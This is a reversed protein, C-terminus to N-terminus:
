RLVLVKLIWKKAGVMVRFYYLGNALTMGSKDMLPVVIVDGMVQPSRLSQVKRLSLTFIDVTVNSLDYGPLAVDVQNGTAPNPYVVPTTVATPTGTLTPTPSNLPTSTRTQTPTWSSTSTSTMSETPTWTPTVSPTHTQTATVTNTPTRTMTSTNSSTDTATSTATSTRTATMTHTNTSTATSTSTGTATSTRTATSTASNTATESDTVTSSSTSTPTSTSTYQNTPTNTQTETPTITFTHTMTPTPTDTFCNTQYFYQLNNAGGTAGTFGYYVCTAGGFVSAVLDRDYTMVVAGDMYLTLAKGVPDWTINYTHEVGNDIPTGFVFPCTGGTTYGCTSTTSGNEEPQLTGNNAYTELCLAVSPTIANTGSYGKDSGGGAIAATGRPDNQLVFDMGDAGAAAGFYAKFTMNFNQTLSICTRNWASGVQGNTATTLTVAAGQTANGNVIWNSCAGFTPTVTPTYTPTATYNNMQMQFIGRGFTWATLTDTSKEFMLQQVSVNPMGTSAPNMATWSTGSNTSYLMGIDTGVFIDAPTNPDVAICNHPINVGDDISTWTPSAALANATVFIHGSPTGDYGSYVAYLTNANAPNFTVQTINLNPLGNTVPGNWSTGGNSTVWIENKADTFAITKNTTDSLAYEIYQINGTPAISSSINTWVVNTSTPNSWFDTAQYLTTSAGALVYNQNNYSRCTAQIGTLSGVQQGTTTYYFSPNNWVSPNTSRYMTGNSSTGLAGAADGFFDQQNSSGDGGALSQAFVGGGISLQTGNDQTGGGVLNSPYGPQVSGSHGYIMMTQLGGENIDNFTNGSDTSLFIGGDCSALLNTNSQWCLERGDAHFPSNGAYYETWASNTGNAVNFTEYNTWSDTCPSNCYYNYFDLYIMQSNTPNVKFGDPSSIPATLTTWVPTPDWADSTMYFGSPNYAYDGTAAIVYVTNQDSPAIAVYLDSLGSVSSWPGSVVSWSTGANTSRYIGATPNSGINSANAFYQNSFNSSSAVLCPGPIGICGQFTNTWTTGGNTSKYVGGLNGWTPGVYWSYRCDFEVNNPNAPDVLMDRMNTYYNTGLINNYTAIENWTSGGDTSEIVGGWGDEAPQTNAYVINPSSASFAIAGSNNNYSVNFSPYDDTQPTWTTGNNTTQWIGGSDSFILIHSSNSPDVAINWIRGNDKQNSPNYGETLYVPGAPTWQPSLANADHTMLGLAFLPLAARILAASGKVTGRDRM